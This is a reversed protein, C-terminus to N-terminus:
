LYQLDFKNQAIFSTAEKLPRLLKFGKAFNGQKFFVYSHAFVLFCIWNKQVLYLPGIESSALFALFQTPVLFSFHPLIAWQGYVENKSVPISKVDIVLARV